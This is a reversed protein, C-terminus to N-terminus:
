NRWVTVIYGNNNAIITIKGDTYRWKGNSRRARNCTNHVVTEVQDSGIHDATMEQMAHLSYGTVICPASALIAVSGTATTGAPEVAANAAQTAGAGTALVIVAGAVLRQVLRM